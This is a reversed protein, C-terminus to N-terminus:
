GSGNSGRRSTPVLVTILVVALTLGLAWFLLSGLAMWWGDLVGADWMVGHGPVLATPRFLAGFLILALAAIWGIGLATWVARTM